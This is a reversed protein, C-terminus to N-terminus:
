DMRWRCGSGQRMLTHRICCAEDSHTEGWKFVREPSKRSPGTTLFGDELDPPVPETRSLPVLVRCALPCSFSHQLYLPWSSFVACRLSSGACGFFLVFSESFLSTTVLPSVIYPYPTLLYWSNHIFYAVLINYFVPFIVM